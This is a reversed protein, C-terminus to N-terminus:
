IISFFITNSLSSDFVLDITLVDITPTPAKVARDLRKSFMGSPRMMRLLMRRFFQFEDFVHASFIRVGSKDDKPYFKRLTAIRMRNGTKPTYEFSKFKSWDLRWIWLIDWLSIFLHLIWPLPNLNIFLM